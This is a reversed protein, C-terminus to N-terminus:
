RPPPLLGLKGLFNDVIPHWQTHGATMVRHGDNGIPPLMVLDAKGGAGVYAQHWARPHQNGWYRDNTSYIWLMPIRASGASLAYVQSVKAADCPEKPRAKPNGGSGGAFNISTVVGLPSKGNVYTTALGGVSAGTLVIANQKVFPLTRVFDLAAIIQQGAAEVVHQEDREKCRGGYEPDPNAGGTEGYGIRTPVVAAFGRATWYRVVPLLRQRQIKGRNEVNARGHNIIVVPFPGPGPPRFHTVVFYGAHQKGGLLPATVPLRVITESLDAALALLSADEAVSEVQLSHQAALPSAFIHLCTALIKIFNSLMRKEACVKLRAWPREKVSTQIDDSECRM